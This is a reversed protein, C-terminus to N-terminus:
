KLDGLPKCSRSDIDVDVREIWAWTGSYNFLYRDNQMGFIYIERNGDLNVPRDGAPNKNMLRTTGSSAAFVFGKHKNVHPAVVGLCRPGGSAQDKEYPLDAHLDVRTFSARGPAVQTCFTKAKIGRTNVRYCVEGVVQPKVDPVLPNPIFASEIRVQGAHYFGLFHARTSKMSDTSTFGSLKAILSNGTVLKEIPTGKLQNRSRPLKSNLPLFSIEIAGPNGDLGFDREYGEPLHFAIESNFIRLMSKFQGWDSSRPEPIMLRALAEDVRPQVSADHFYSRNLERLILQYAAHDNSNERRVRALGPVLGGIVTPVDMHPQTVYYTEVHDAVHTESQIDKEGVIYRFLFDPAAYAAEVATDGETGGIVNGMIGSVMNFQKLNTSVDGVIATVRTQQPFFKRKILEDIIIDIRDEMLNQSGIALEHEQRYLGSGFLNLLLNGTTLANAVSSGWQAGALTIFHQLNPPAKKSCGNYHTGNSLKMSGKAMCNDIYQRGVIAGQSHMIMSYPANRDPMKSVIQEFIQKVFDTTSAKPNLTDYTLVVSRIKEPQGPVNFTEELLKPMDFFTDTSGSLGHIFFVTLPQVQPGAHASQSIFGALSAVYLGILATTVQNLRIM